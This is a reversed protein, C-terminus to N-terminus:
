KSYSIHGQILEPEKMHKNIKISWKEYEKVLVHIILNDSSGEPYFPVLVTGNSIVENSRLVVEELRFSSPFDRFKFIKRSSEIFNGDKMTLVSIGNVRSFFPDTEGSNKKYLHIALYNNRDHMYSDDFVKSIVGTILSFNKRENSLYGSIKPVAVMAVISVIAVVALVEILTFGSISKKSSKM